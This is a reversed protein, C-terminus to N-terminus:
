FEIYFTRRTMIGHYDVAAYSVEYIYGAEGNVKVTADGSIVKNCNEGSAALAKAAADSQSLPAKTSADFVNSIAVYKRYAPAFYEATNSTPYLYADAGIKTARNVTQGIFKFGKGTQHAVMNINFMTYLHIYSNLTQYKAAVFNQLETIMNQKTEEIADRWEQDLNNFENIFKALDVSVEWSSTSTEVILEELQTLTTVNEQSTTVTVTVTQKVGNVYGTISATVQQGEAEIKNFEIGKTIDMEPVNVKIKSILEDIVNYIQKEGPLKQLKAVDILTNFSLPRAIATGIAYNSYISHTKGESDTWSGKVANAVYKNDISNYVNYLLTFLDTKTKNKWTSKVESKLKEIDVSLLLSKLNEPTTKVYAEADYFGNDARTTRDYGFTLLDTCKRAPRLEVPSKQGASNELTFTEGSFDVTNPNVTMFVRGLYLEAYDSAGDNSFWKGGAQTFFGSVDKLSGGNTMIYVDEDTFEQDSRIWHGNKSPFTFAADSNGAYAMLLTSRTDLPLNLYGLVPNETAQVIISTIQKAM